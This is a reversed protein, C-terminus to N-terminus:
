VKCDFCGDGSNSNGDDCEEDPSVYGDGCTYLCYYDGSSV